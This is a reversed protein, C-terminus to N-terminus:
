FHSLLGLLNGDKSCSGIFEKMEVKGDSNYDMDRFVREAMEETTENQGMKKRFRMIKFILYFIKKMEVLEISGNGDVDYM